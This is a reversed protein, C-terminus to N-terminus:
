SEFNNKLDFSLTLSEIMDSLYVNRLYVHIPLFEIESEQVILLLNTLM